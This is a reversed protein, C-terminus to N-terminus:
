GHKLITAGFFAIRFFNFGNTKRIDSIQYQCELIEPCLIRCIFKRFMKASMFKRPFPLFHSFEFTETRLLKKRGEFDIYLNIDRFRANIM